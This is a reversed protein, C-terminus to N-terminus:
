GRAANRELQHMLAYMKRAGDRRSGNGAGRVAKATFVFEGDSLMAPISDSTETGPGDIQGIRRPYGGRALAAIGGTNMYQPTYSAYNPTAVQIDSLPVFTNRQEVRIPMGREDYVVGPLDQLMYKKANTSYDIPTRMRKAFESEPPRKQDFAGLAGAALTGGVVTPGYTRMYGPVKGTKDLYKIASETSMGKTTRLDDIMAQYQEASPGPTFLDEAGKMFREAGTKFNGTAIDKIGGGMTSLSEGVGPIKYDGPLPTEYAGAGTGAGGGMPQGPLAGAGPQVASTKPMPYGPPAGPYSVPANPGIAGINQIAEIQPRVPTQSIGAVQDTTPAGFNRKIINAKQLDLYDTTGPAPATIPAAGPAPTPTAPTAPGASPASVGVPTAPGIPSGRGDVMQEVMRGDKYFSTQKFLGPTGTPEMAKDILQDVTSTAAKATSSAAADQADAKAAQINGLNQAYSIGGAIAGSTLGGKVADKFNQGTALGAGTGIIAADAAAKVVPNTIFQGTYKGVFDSVVSGPASAYGLVSSTLIQKLDGGSLATVTANAAASALAANSTIALAGQPGLVTALVVTGIIRGIPNSLVKKLGKGISSFLNGIAKFPNWFEPLGTAPNITGSGGRSRLLKAEQPTIHALMTDGNRGANAVIRAAEAIGGRAFAQPAPMTARSQRSRQEELLVTLMAGLFEEDYEAPLDGQEMAGQKVLKAITEAYADPNELLQQVIAVMQGIQDDTLNTLSARIEDLTEQLELDADPRAQQLGQRAADYSDMYSLQPMTEGGGAPLAMIGQGDTAM